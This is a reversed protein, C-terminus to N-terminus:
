KSFAVDLNLMILIARLGFKSDILKLWKKFLMLKESLLWSGSTLKKRSLIGVKLVPYKEGESTIIPKEFNSDGSVNETSCRLM